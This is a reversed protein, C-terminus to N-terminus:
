PKRQVSHATKSPTLLTYIFQLLALFAFFLAVFQATKLTVDFKYDEFNVFLFGIFGLFGGMFFSLFRLTSLYIPIVTLSSHEYQISFRHWSYVYAVSFGSLLMLIFERASGVSIFGMLFIQYFCYLFILGHGIILVSELLTHFNKRLRAKEVHDLLNQESM